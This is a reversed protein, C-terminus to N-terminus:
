GLTPKMSDPLDIALANTTTCLMVYYGVTVTLEVAGRTGLVAEVGRFTDDTVRNAVVQRVYEVVRREADDLAEWRRSKIATIAEPRVGAKAASREHFTWEFACDLLRSITLVALERTVLDLSTEGQLAKMLDSVSASVGSSHLMLQLPRPIRGWTAEIHEANGQVDNPLDSRQLYRVRAM